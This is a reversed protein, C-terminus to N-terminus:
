NNTFDVIYSNDEEYIDTNQLPTVTFIITYEGKDKIFIEKTFTTQEGKQINGEDISEEAILNDDKYLAINGNYRTPTGKNEIIIDFETFPNDILVKEPIAIISLEPNDTDEYYAKGTQQVTTCATILLLTTILIFTKNM